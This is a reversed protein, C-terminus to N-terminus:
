QGQAVNALRLSSTVGKWRQEKGTSHRTLIHVLVPAIVVATTAATPVVVPTVVASSSAASTTVLVVVPVLVAASAAASSRGLPVVGLEVIVCLHCVVSLLFEGCVDLYCVDEVFCLTLWHRVHLSVYVGRTM